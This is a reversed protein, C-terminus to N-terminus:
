EPHKITGDYFVDCDNGFIDNILNTVPALIMQLVRVRSFTPSNLDGYARQSFISCGNKNLLAITLDLSEKSLNIFGQAAIRNKTTTFAADRITYNRNSIEWNSILRTIKSSEGSDVLFINAYDSGKSVAIGVPGALLVAGLDILNFSQSRKFKEVLKDTDLGYFILNKGSLNINGFTNNRLTEWDSGKSSIDAHLSLSGTVVTDELFISLMEEIYFEPVDYKIHYEPIDSFPKLKWFSNGKASEGFLRTSGSGIEYEGNDVTISLEGKPLVFYKTIIENAAFKGSTSLTALPNSNLKDNYYINSFNLRLSKLEITDTPSYYILNGDKLNIFKLITSDMPFQFETFFSGSLKGTFFEPITDGKDYFLISPSIKKFNTNLKIYFNFNGDLFITEFKDFKLNFGLISESVKFKGSEIKLPPLFNEATADLKRINFEIEPFSKFKTAKSTTTKASVDVDVNLIRHNFDRKISPDFALFNPLDFVSSKIKLDANIEKEINLLLYQLNEIKGNILFDTDDSILSINDFYYDDKKRLIYGNMRDIKFTGPINFGFDEFFVSGKNVESLFEKERVIYKGKFRNDIEIRGKLNEIFELKFVKDFGTLDANLFFQVDFEPLLFNKVIGSLRFSGSPFDAYLTDVKLRAESFDDKNGSTFHGKLNVNEIKRKTVPNILEINKLDISFDISPFEIFTKGNITGRFHFDGKKFKKREEERLLQSFLSLSADSGDINLLLEGNNQPNFFGDFKFVSKEFELKGAQIELKNDKDLHLKIDLKVNKNQLSLNKNLKINEVTISTILDLNVEQGTYDFSVEMDKVLYTSQRDKPYNLFRLNIDNIILQQIDVLTEKKEETNTKKRWIGLANLLNISSDPYTVISLDGDDIFIRSVNLNGQLLEVVDLGLYFNKIRAIPQEDFKRDISKREYYTLNNLDISLNPFHRLPVFDINDFSFQGNQQTNLTLLLVKAIENKHYSIYVTLVISFLFFLLWMIGLLALIKKLASKLV